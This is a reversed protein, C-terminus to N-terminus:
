NVRKFTHIWYIPSLVTSFFSTYLKMNQSETWTTFLMLRQMTKTAKTQKFISVKLYKATKGQKYFCVIPFWHEVHM